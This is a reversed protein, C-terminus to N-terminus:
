PSGDGGDGGVRARPRSEIWEEIEDARWGVAQPGLKVRQPFEGKRERRWITTRSLGTMETVEGVRLLRTMM